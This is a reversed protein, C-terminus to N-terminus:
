YSSSPVFTRKQRLAVLPLKRCALLVVATLDVGPRYPGMPVDLPTSRTRLCGPPVDVTPAIPPM